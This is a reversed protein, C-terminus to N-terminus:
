PVQPTKMRSLATGMARSAPLSFCRSTIGTVQGLKESGKKKSDNFLPALPGGRLEGYLGHGTALGYLPSISGLLDKGKM